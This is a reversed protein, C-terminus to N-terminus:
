GNIPFYLFKFNEESLNFLDFEEFEETHDIYFRLKEFNSIIVYRATKHNDKYGFAQIEVTRLDKTKLDKLEIVGVPEGNLFIAGDAKKSDTSNKFETMLNFKPDPNVTYGLIEAFLKRLFGEQFQEEKSTRINEQVEPDLFYAKYVNYRESVDETQSKLYKAVVNRQFIPM